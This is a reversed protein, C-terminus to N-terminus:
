DHDNDRFRAAHADFLLYKSEPRDVNALGVVQGWENGKKIAYVRRGKLKEWEAVGVVEMTRMILDHGYATGQRPGRTGDDREVGPSDMVFGGAGQGSGGYDLHLYFMFIGHDEWGLTTSEILGLIMLYEEGDITLKPHEMRAAM